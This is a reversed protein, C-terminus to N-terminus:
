GIMRITVPNDHVQAVLGVGRGAGICRRGQDHIVHDVSVASAANFAENHRIDPDDVIGAIVVVEIKGNSFSAFDDVVTGIVVM